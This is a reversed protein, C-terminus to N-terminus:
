PGREQARNEDPQVAGGAGRPAAEEGGGVGEQGGHAAPAADERGAEVKSGDHKVESVFVDLYEPVMLVNVKAGTRQRWQAIGQLLSKMAHGALHYRPRLLIVTGDGDAVTLKAMHKGLVFDATQAESM